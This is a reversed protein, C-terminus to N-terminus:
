RVSSSVPLSFVFPFKCCYSIPGNPKNEPLITNRLDCGPRWVRVGFVLLYRSFLGVNLTFMYVFTM